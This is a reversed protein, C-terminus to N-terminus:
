KRGRFQVMLRTYYDYYTTSNSNGSSFLKIYMRAGAGPTSGVDVWEAEEPSQMKVTRIVRTSPEHVQSSDYASVTALSGIATNQNRDIVTYLPATVTTTPTNYKNWPILEVQMSLVRFECYLAALSAWDTAAQAQNCSDFVTNIVGTGGSAVANIVNLQTTMTDDVQAAKPLRTPGRYVLSTPAPNVAVIAKSRSTSKKTKRKRTM